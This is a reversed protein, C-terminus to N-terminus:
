GVNWSAIYNEEFNKRIYGAAIKECIDDEYSYVMGNLVLMSKDIRDEIQPYGNEILLDECKELFEQSKEFEERRQLYDRFDEEDERKLHEEMFECLEDHILSNKVINKSSKRNRASIRNIIVVNFKDINIDQLFRYTNELVASGIPEDVLPNFMVVEMSGCPEIEKERLDKIRIKIIEPMCACELAADAFRDLKFPLESENDLYLSDCVCLLMQKYFEGYEDLSCKAIFRDLDKEDRFAIVFSSSSSNTVFGNRIKM